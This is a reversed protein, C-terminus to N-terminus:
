LVLIFATGSNVQLVTMLVSILAGIKAMSENVDVGSVGEKKGDGEQEEEGEKEKEGDGEEMRMEALDKRYEDMDELFQGILTLSYEMDLIWFQRMSILTRATKKVVMQKQQQLTDDLHWGVLIDVIDQPTTSCITSFIKNAYQRVRNM